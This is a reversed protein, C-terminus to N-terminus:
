LPYAGACCECYGHIDKSEPSVIMTEAAPHSSMGSAILVVALTICTAGALRMGFAVPSKAVRGSWRDAVVTWLARSAYIINIMVAEGTLAILLVVLTTQFGMAASGIWLNKRAEPPTPPWKGLLLAMAAVTIFLLPTAVGAGLDHRVEVVLLDTAAFFVSAGFAYAVARKSLRSSEGPRIQLFLVGVFALVASLWHVWTVQLQGLFTAVGAILLTKLGLLPGVMSLDGKELAKIAFLRGVFLAAGAGVTLSMNRASMTGHPLLFLPLSWLAMLLNTIAVASRSSAGKQMSTKIGLAGGAYLVSAMATALVVFISM